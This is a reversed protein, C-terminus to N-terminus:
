GNLQLSWLSLDKKNIFYLYNEQTDLTLNTADIITGSTKLLDAILHADGTVTDVEWISDSFSVNGKYWDEPYNALPITSPVACYLVNKQLNSWVCKEPLTNFLLNQNAGSKINYVSTIISSNASASYLVQNGDKSVLTSLGAVDGLIKTFIGTKQDVFYLYGAARSYGKTTVALISSEPWEINLDALPTSFIAAKKSGDFQSIYGTSGSTGDTNKELTFVNNGTPAVAIGITNSPLPSGRLEFPTSEATSTSTTALAAPSVASLTAYFSTVTDSDETLSQLIFATANKNWYTAYVEPVTTNSLEDIATNNSYAQYVRGVGRDIWRIITSSATTSAMMGGVPTMSLERLVPVAAPTQNGSLGSSTSASNTGSLNGNSAGSGSNGFISSGGNQATSGNTNLGPSSNRIFFWYYAGAIGALVIIVILTFTKKSM